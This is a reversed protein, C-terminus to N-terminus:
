VLREFRHVVHRVPQEVGAHQEGHELATAHEPPVVTHHAVQRLRADTGSRQGQWQQLALPSAALAALLALGAPLSTRRM